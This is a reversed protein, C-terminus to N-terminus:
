GGQPHSHALFIWAFRLRETSGRTILNTWPCNWVEQKRVAEQNISQNKRVKLEALLTHTHTHTHTHFFLSGKRGAQRGEKREKREVARGGKRREKKEKKRRFYLDL